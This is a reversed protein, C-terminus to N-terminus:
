ITRLRKPSIQESSSLLRAERVVEAIEDISTEVFWESCVNGNSSPALKSRLSEHVSHELHGLHPYVAELCVGEEGFIFFPLKGEIEARRRVPDQTRGVKFARKNHISMIYLDDPTGYDLALKRANNSRLNNIIYKVTCIDGVPTPRQRQGPFQHNEYQIKQLVNEGAAEYDDCVKKIDKGADRSTKGSVLMAVDILSFKKDRGEGTTRVRISQKAGLLTFLEENDPQAQLPM